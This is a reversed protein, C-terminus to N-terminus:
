VVVTIGTCGLAPYHEPYMEKVTKNDWKHSLCGSENSECYEDLDTQIWLTINEPVLKRIDYVTM